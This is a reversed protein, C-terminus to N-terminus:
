IAAAQGSDRDRVAHGTNATTCEVIGGQASDVVAAGLGLPVGKHGGGVEGIHVIGGDVAAPVGRRDGPRDLLAQGPAVAVSAEAGVVGDGALLRRGEEPTEGPLGVGQALAGEGVPLGHVAVCLLRHVPGM